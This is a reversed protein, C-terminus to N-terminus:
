VVTVHGHLSAVETERLLQMLPGVDGTAARRARELAEREPPTTPPQALVAALERALANVNGVPVYRVWPWADNLSGNAGHRLAEPQMDMDVGEESVVPLGLSLCEFLRPQELMAGEYYHLNVVVRASRRLNDRLERGFKGSILVVPLGLDVLEMLIRRRRENLSGYLVVHEPPPPPRQGHVGVQAEPSVMAAADDDDEELAEHAYWSVAGLTLARAKIDHRALFPM